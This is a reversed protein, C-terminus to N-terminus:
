TPVCVTPYLNVAVVHSLLMQALKNLAIGNSIRLPCFPFNQRGGRMNKDGGEGWILKRGGMSKNVCYLTTNDDWFM